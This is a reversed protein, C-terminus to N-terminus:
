MSSCVFFSGLGIEFFTVYILVCLVSLIGLLQSLDLGASAADLTHTSALTTQASSESLNNLGYLAATLFFCSLLMGVTSIILLLRRGMRDMLFIAVGEFDL